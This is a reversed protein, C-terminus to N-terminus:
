KVVSIKIKRIGFDFNKFTGNIGFGGQYDPLASGIVQRDDATIFGDGNLDKLKLM